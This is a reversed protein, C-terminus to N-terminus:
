YTFPLFFIGEVHMCVIIRLVSHITGHHINESVWPHDSRKGALEELIDPRKEISRCTIRDNSMMVLTPMTVIGVSPIIDHSCTVGECVM